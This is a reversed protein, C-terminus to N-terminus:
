NTILAAIRHGAIIIQPLAVQRATSLYEPTLEIEPDQQNSIRQLLQRTVEQTYVYEMARMHQQHAWADISRIRAVDNSLLAETKEDPTLDDSRNPLGDWVVHLNTVDHKRRIAISNGGRDGQPFYERSFLAVNHLPQHLDATLHLIWCLAVARDAASASEDRWVLLNGTLAQVVNLNERLPPTFETSVNHDLGRALETEDEPSLFVPLNIYHWTGRHYRAGVEKGFHQVLDPWISAREFMWLAKARESGRAIEQPMAAAFDQRFRPHAHLVAAAQQQRKESLLEFAIGATMKHGAAHWAFAPSM